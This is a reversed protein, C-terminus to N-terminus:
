SFVFKHGNNLKEYLAKLFPYTQIAFMQVVNRGLDVRSFNLM